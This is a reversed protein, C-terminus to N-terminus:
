FENIYGRNSWKEAKYQLWMSILTISLFLLSALFYFTFPQHTAGAAIKTKRMLEDLQIISVLATAKILVMWVNGLGPLAFRMAQPFLIRQFRQRQNMGSAIAAEKQGKPIAQFAGRFVETCFAGYIFGLTLSGAIFSNINLIIDHGFQAAIHQILTPLGFYVLLLLILEPIGRIVVTYVEAIFRAVSSSSLKAWSALLGLCVALLMSTVGILLTLKFGEVLMWGYGQLDLM